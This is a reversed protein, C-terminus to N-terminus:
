AGRYGIRASKVRNFQAPNKARQNYIQDAELMGKRFEETLAAVIPEARKNVEIAMDRPRNGNNEAIIEKMANYYADDADTILQMNKIIAKRGSETTALTPITNFFYELDKDTIRAGFIAKAGELFSSTLKDFEDINPYANKQAYRMATVMPKLLLGSLGGIAGGLAAGAARGGIQGALAGLPGGSSGGVTGILGGLAGGATSLAAAAASPSISEELDKLVKYAAPSPLGSPSNIIDEIRDLRLRTKQNLDHKKVMEDYYPKTEKNAESINKLIAKKEEATARVSEKRQTERDRMAQQIFQTAQKKNLGSPIVIPKSQALQNKQPAINKQADVPQNSVPVDSMRKFSGFIKNGLIEGETPVQQEVNQYQNQSSYPFDLQDQQQNLSANFGLQQPNYPQNELKDKVILQLLSPDLLSYSKSQEPSFGLSELGRATNQQAFSRQLQSMKHAALNELGAGLAEGLMNPRKTLDLRQLAM